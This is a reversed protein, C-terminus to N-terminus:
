FSSGYLSHKYLPVGTAVGSKRGVMVAAGDSGFVKLRDVSLGEQQLVSFLNDSLVQADSKPDPVTKKKLFITQPKFKEDVM